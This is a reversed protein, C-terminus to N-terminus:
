FLSSCLPGTISKTCSITRVSLSILGYFTARGVIEQVSLAEFGKEQILSLMAARLLQHTRQVRRDQKKAM